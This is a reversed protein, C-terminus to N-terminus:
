ARQQQNYRALIEREARLWDEREHGPEGGRQEYIEYARRSIEAQLNIPSASASPKALPASNVDDIGAVPPMTIIQKNSTDVIRATKTKAM